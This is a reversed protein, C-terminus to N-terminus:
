INTLLRIRYKHRDIFGEIELNKIERMMASRDVSLFDALQTYNMPIYFVRQYNRSALDNFYILLRDRITRQSLMEIHFNLQEFKIRFVQLLANILEHNNKKRSIIEMIMSLSFVMTSCESTASVSYEGSTTINHFIEGFLDNEYYHELIYKGGKRDYKILDAEGEMLIYIRDRKEMYDAIIDDKQYHKVIVGNISLLSNILLQIQEKNDM